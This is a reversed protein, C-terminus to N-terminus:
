RSGGNAKSAVMHVCGKASVFGLKHPCEQLVFSCRKHMFAFEAKCFDCTSFHLVLPIIPAPLFIRSEELRNIACCVDEAREWVKLCEKEIGLEEIEDSM